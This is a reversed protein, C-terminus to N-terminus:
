GCLVGCISVSVLYLLRDGIHQRQDAEFEAESQTQSMETINKDALQNVLRPYQVALRQVFRFEYSVHQLQGYVRDPNVGMPIGFVQHHYSSGFGVYSNEVLLRVVM